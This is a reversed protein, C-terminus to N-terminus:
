GFRGESKFLTKSIQVGQLMTKQGIRSRESRVSRSFGDHSRRVPPPFRCGQGDNRSPSRSSNPSSEVVFARCTRGSGPRCRTASYLAMPSHGHGALRSPPNWLCSHPFRDRQVTVTSKRRARVDSHLDMSRPDPLPQYTFLLSSEPPLVEKRSGIGRVAIGPVHTM